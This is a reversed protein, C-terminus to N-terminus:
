RILEELPDKGELNKGVLKSITSPNGGFLGWGIRTQDRLKELHRIKPNSRPERHEVGAGDVSVKVFVRGEKEIEEQLIVKEAEMICLDAFQLANVPNLLGLRFYLPALKKWFKRAGSGVHSPIKPFVSPPKPENENM